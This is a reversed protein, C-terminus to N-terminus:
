LAKESNSRAEWLVLLWESGSQKSWTQIMGEDGKWTTQRIQLNSNKYDPFIVTLNGLTVHRDIENLKFEMEHSPRGFKQILKSLPKGTPDNSKLAQIKQSIGPVQVSAQCGLVLLLAPLFLVSSPRKM